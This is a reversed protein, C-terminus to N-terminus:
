QRLRAGTRQTVFRILREHVVNVEADTLTRDPSQFRLRFAVSKSGQPLAGGRFIDFVVCETILPTSFAEIAEHLVAVPMQEDVTLAIDRFVPPQRSFAAYRIEQRAYASLADFDLEFIYVPQEFGYREAIGPHLRGMAGIRLEAICLTLSNAPHLYPENAASVMRLPGAHLRRCMTTLAGKIDYLDAPVQPAHCSLPHRLGAVAACLMMTERPQAAKSDSLFVKGLEFFRLSAAGNNFNDRISQLIGPVLTTRMVSQAASLPNRIALPASRIDEPAFGLGTIADPATFSYTIIESFGAGTLADRATHAATRAADQAACSVSVAPMTVPIHDYGHVRAIEEIIDIPETLDYRFSPPTVVLTDGGSIEAACHLRTALARIDAPSLATGAIRNAKSVNLRIPRPPHVERVYGDVCGSAVSGGAIQAMLSAARNLSPVVGNIDIGKEFRLSAETKLNLLRSTRNISAPTFYASELLVDTTLDSVGSNIGGMIGAIAVPRSGDCILLSQEPLLRDIEDLTVFHEDPRSLRVVIRNDAIQALDFAHLPQGRELMIYNTVDVIANIARVGCAILRRQMWLPSPVISVNRIIRAAYRPCHDPAEIHVAVQRSTPSGSESLTLAPERCQLDYLAALERAIGLVSLCDARNPTVSIDLVTDRLQLYDSLAAGSPADAPLVMIGSTDTGLALETESCIMGESSQGRIKAKKITVGCPLRAGELALPVKQGERINPAGCVVSFMRQGARLKALSLKDANPHRSIELIEAVVVNDLEAGLRIIEEVELGAMTLREAIHEPTDDLPLFERIWNLSVRM